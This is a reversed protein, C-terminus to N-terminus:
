FSLNLGFIIQKMSPYQLRDVGMGGGLLLTAGSPLAVTEGAQTSAMSEPDLGKYDTFTIFNELSAYIRLSSIRAMKTIKSPLTYGLQIEKIKFFSSNFVLLDSQAIRASNSAFGRAGPNTADTNESTWHDKVLFDPLNMNPLDPRVVAFLLESGQQGNGFVRLDVGKYAANVTIGYTFDPISSGAPALGDDTGLQEATKWIPQGNTEDIHDLKNVRLYWIPHGKEFFTGGGGIFSLFGGGGSFRGDGYPSEIVENHLTSLNGNVSYTFDGIEDRWSLEFEFGSNEIKGVNKRTSSNGSVAPATANSLLLGDTLKYFYDMSFALKNSLFRSEFGIDTQKSKEWTLNPNPLLNVPAAGTYLQDTYSYYNGLTLLSTYPYNDLVDVNGNIGWSARVKFYSLSALGLDKIFNENTLVWGASVSPFYGWRKDAPLKSADYADARYSGQLMYKNDYNWELRGFYSISRQFYSRGFLQDNATAASYDIYRYNPFNSQLQDTTSRVNTPNNNTYQMGLMANLDNKGFSHSYNAFNEWQYYVTHTLGSELSAYPRNQNPNWYYNDSYNSIFSNGFRYGLRSTYVLGKVPKLEAYASGNINTRWSENTYNEIMGLPNWLNSQMLFSSGYLQNNSNRLVHFGNKEASLL